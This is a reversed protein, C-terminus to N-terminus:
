NINNYLKNRHTMIDFTINQGTLNDSNMEASLYLIEDIIEYKDGKNNMTLYRHSCDVDSFRVNEYNYLYKEFFVMDGGKRINEFIGLKDFVTRKYVLTGLSVLPKCCESNHHKNLLNQTVIKAFIFEKDNIDINAFDPLHTRLIYNGCMQLNNDIMKNMTKEYRDHLSIDDSGHITIYEGNCLNLALNISPYCGYNKMNNLITIKSNNEYTAIINTTAINSGDNIIILELNQYTQNIISEIATILLESRNYVPMIVSLLPGTFEKIKNFSFYPYISTNFNIKRKEKYGQFLYHKILTYKNDINNLDLNNNKYYEHDFHIMFPYATYLMQENIIRGENCGHNKYHTIASQECLGFTQKLDSNFSLYFEWDFISNM